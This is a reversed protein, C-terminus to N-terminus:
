PAAHGWSPPRVWGAAPKPPPCDGASACCRTGRSPALERPTTDPQLQALRRHGVPPLQCTLTEDEDLVAVLEARTLSAIDCATFADFAARLAAVAEVAGAQMIRVYM